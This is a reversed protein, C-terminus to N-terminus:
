QGVPVGPHREQSIQVVRRSAISQKAALATKLSQMGDNLDVIPKSRSKVCALFHQIEDIFM